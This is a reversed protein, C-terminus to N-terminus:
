ASTPVPVWEGWGFRVAQNRLPAYVAEPVRKHLFTIAEPLCHDYSRVSEIDTASLMLTFLEAMREPENVAIEYLVGEESQLDYLRFRLLSNERPLPAPHRCAFELADIRSESPAVYLWEALSSAERDDLVSPLNKIRDEWYPWMWQEWHSIRDEPSIDEASHAVCQAFTARMEPNLKATIKMLWGHAIEATIWCINVMLYGFQTQAEDYCRDVYSAFKECLDRLGDDLLGRNVYQQHLYAEWSRVSTDIDIAPDFMPLLHEKTWAADIHYLFALERACITQASRHNDTAGAVIHSLLDAHEEPLGAWADQGKHYQARILSLAFQALHGQWTNIAAFLTGGPGRQNREHLPVQDQPGYDLLDCLLASMMPNYEHDTEPNAGHEAFAGLSIYAICQWAATDTDEACLLLAQLLAQGSEPHGSIMEPLAELLSQSRVHRSELDWMQRPQAEEILEGMTCEPDDVMRRALEAHPVAEVRPPQEIGAEVPGYWRLLDPHEEMPWEPHEQQSDAFANRATDSATAHQAVWGLRDHRFRESHKLGQESKPRAILEAIVDEDADRVTTALLRM